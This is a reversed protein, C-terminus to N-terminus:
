LLREVSFVIFIFIVASRESLMLVIFEVVHLIWRIFLFVRVNSKIRRCEWKLRWVVLLYSLIFLCFVGSHIQITSQSLMLVPNIQLDAKLSVNTNVIWKVNRVGNDLFILSNVIDSLDDKLVLFGYLFFSLGFVNHGYVLFM